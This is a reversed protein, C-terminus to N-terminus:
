NTENFVMPPTEEGMAKEYYVRISRTPIYLLIFKAGIENVLM